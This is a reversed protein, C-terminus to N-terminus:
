FSEKPKDQGESARLQKLNLLFNVNKPEKNDLSDENM